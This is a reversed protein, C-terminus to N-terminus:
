PKETIKLLLIQFYNRDNILFLFYNKNNCKRTLSTIEKLVFFYCWIGLKAKHLQPFGKKERCTEKKRGGGGPCTPLM